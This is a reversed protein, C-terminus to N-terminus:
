IREHISRLITIAKDTDWNRAAAVAREIDDHITQDVQAGLAELAELGAPDGVELDRIIATIQERVEEPPTATRAMQDQHDARRYAAILDFITSTENHLSTISSRLTTADQEQVAREATAASRSLHTFGLNAAVGKLNHIRSRLLEQDVAEVNSALLDLLDRQQAEFQLILTRLLSRNGACRSLAGDLDYGNVFSAVDTVLDTHADLREQASRKSIVVDFLADANHVGYVYLAKYLADPDVPKTLHDNMGADISKEREGVMAHATMALIPKQYGRERATRAATLGDMVPMQIDMLVVDYDNTFMRDLAIVGNEAIDANIGVIRLLEKAVQQNIENDEVVLVHLGALASTDIQSKREAMAASDSIVRKGFINVLTDYMLSPNVPKVLFGDAGLASAQEFVDSQGYATVMVITPVHEPYDRRLVKITEFGNMRPMRWDVLLLEYPAKEVIAEHYMIAADEGSHAVAVVFGLSEMMDKLIDLSTQSDDIILVKKNFSTDTRVIRETSATRGVNVAFAFTTGMGQQSTVNIKGGMLEVLNKVISLGLGTGGYKRTTSYDAQTFPEFLHQVQEPSMGIGQDAITISLQYDDGILKSTVNVRVEGADTFKIANDILNTLVQQLRLSDGRVMTPLESDLRLQLEVDPKRALKVNAQEIVNQFLPELSFETHEITLKGAEIKSHDLIDNIIRLLSTASRKVSELHKRHEANLTDSKLILYSLGLIANMPTRIEHSMNSLFDSKAKNAAQAEEALTALIANNAKLERARERVRDMQIGGFRAFLGLFIPATDIIWLLPSGTQAQLWGDLSFSLGEVNAEIVTAIIPFLLGFAAGYLTYNNRETKFM